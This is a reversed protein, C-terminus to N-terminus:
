KPPKGDLAGRRDVVPPPSAPVFRKRGDATDKDTVPGRRTMRPPVALPNEGCGDWYDLTQQASELAVLAQEARISERMPAGIAMHELAYRYSAAKERM